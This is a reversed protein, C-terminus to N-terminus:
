EKQAKGVRRAFSALEPHPHRKFAKRLHAGYSQKLYRVDGSTLMPTLRRTLLLAAEPREPSSLKELPLAPHVAAFTHFHSLLANFVGLHLAEADGLCSDLLQALYAKQTAEDSTMGYAKLLVWSRAYHPCVSIDGSEGRRQGKLEKADDVAASTLINSKFATNKRVRSVARNQVLKIRIAQPLAGAPKQDVLRDCLDVSEQFRGEDLHSDLMCLRLETQGSSAAKVESMDKVPTGNISKLYLGICFRADSASGATGEKVGLLELTNPELLLGMPADADKRLQIDVQASSPDLLRTPIDSADFAAEEEEIDSLNDEFDLAPPSQSGGSRYPSAPSTLDCGDQMFVRIEDHLLSLLDVFYKRASKKVAALIPAADAATGKTPPSASCDVDFDDEDQDVDHVKMTGKVSVTESDAGPPTISGTWNLTISMQYYFVLKKKRNMVGCDGSIDGVTVKIHATDRSMDHAHEEVIDRFRPHVWPTITKETWHWANVNAGDDRHKVIWRPDGKGIEAM